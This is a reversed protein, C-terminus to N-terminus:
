IPRILEILIFRTSSAQRGSSCSFSTRSLICSSLPITSDFSELFLLHALSLSKKLHTASCPICTAPM